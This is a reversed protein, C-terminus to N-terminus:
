ANSTKGDLIGLIEEEETMHTKKLKDVERELRSVERTKASAQRRHKHERLWELIYGLLLGTLVASLIVAFLPVEVSYQVVSGLGEPALNLTVMGRNALALVVIAMMIVALLFLKITRMM